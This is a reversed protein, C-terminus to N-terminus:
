SSFTKSFEDFSVPQGGQAAIEHRARASDDPNLNVGRIADNLFFVKFGKALADLCTAKVCYDTALGGIYLTDIKMASLRESLSKGHSDKGDFGSYGDEEPGTGKSIIITKEPLQLDPHFQAGPTQRVCHVPWPGGSDKFHRSHPPHWDRTAIISCRAAVFREIYRNLVSVVEDGRPVVLAGGPCFDNQVDVICLAASM